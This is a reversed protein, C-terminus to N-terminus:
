SRNTSWRNDYIAQIYWRWNYRLREVQDKSLGRWISRRTTRNCCYWSLNSDKSWPLNVWGTQNWSTFSRGWAQFRPNWYPDGVYSSRLKSMAKKIRHLHISGKELGNWSNTLMSRCGIRRAGCRGTWKGIRWFGSFYKGAIQYSMM